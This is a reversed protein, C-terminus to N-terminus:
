SLSRITMCAKNVSKPIAAGAYVIGQAPYLSPTVAMGEGLFRVHCNGTM